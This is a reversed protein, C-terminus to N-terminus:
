LLMKIARRERRSRRRSQEEAWESDVGEDVAEITWYDASLIKPGGMETKYVALAISDVIDAGAPVVERGRVSHFVISTHPIWSEEISSRELRPLFGPFRGSVLPRSLRHPPRKSRVLGLGYRIRNELLEIRDHGLGVGLGAM